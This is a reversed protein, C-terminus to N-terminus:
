SSGSRASAYAAPEGNKEGEAGCIQFCQRGLEGLEITKNRGRGIGPGGCISVHSGAQIDKWEMVARKHIEM